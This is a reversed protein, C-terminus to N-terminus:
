DWQHDESPVKLTHDPEVVNSSLNKDTNITFYFADINAHESNGLERM